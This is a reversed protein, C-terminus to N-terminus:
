RGSGRRRDQLNMILLAIGAAVGTGFMLVPIMLPHWYHAVLYAGVALTPFMTFLVAIPLLIDKITSRSM